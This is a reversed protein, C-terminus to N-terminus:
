RHRKALHPVLPGWVGSHMAWGHLLVLPPGHGVTEVHLGGTM